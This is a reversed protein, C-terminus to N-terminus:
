SERLLKELLMREQRSGSSIYRSFGGRLIWSGLLILAVLCCFLLLLLCDRAGERLEFRSEAVNQVILNFFTHQEANV